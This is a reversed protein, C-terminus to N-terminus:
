LPEVTDDSKNLGKWSVSEKLVELGDVLSWLSGVSMHYNIRQRSDDETM